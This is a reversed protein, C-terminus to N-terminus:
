GVSVIKSPDPSGDDARRQFTVTIERGPELRTRSDVRRFEDVTMLLVTGDMLTVRIPDRNREVSRVKSRRTAHPVELDVGPVGYSYPGLDESGTWTSPLMAGGASDNHGGFTNQSFQAHVRGEGDEVFRRFGGLM